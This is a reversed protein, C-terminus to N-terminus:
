QCNRSAHHRKAPGVYQVPGPVVRHGRYVRLCHSLFPYGHKLHPARAPTHCSQASFGQPLLALPKVPPTTGQDRKCPLFSKRWVTAQQSRRCELLHWLTNRACLLSPPGTHRHLDARFNAQIGSDIAAIELSAAVNTSFIKKFQGSFKARMLYPLRHSQGHRAGNPAVVVASRM